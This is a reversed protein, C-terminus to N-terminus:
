KYCWLLNEDQNGEEMVKSHPSGQHRQRKLIWRCYLLGLNLGQTLFIGRSFPIAVWELIRTQVIGYVSSGPLKFSVPKMCM